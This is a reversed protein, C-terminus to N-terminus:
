GLPVADPPTQASADPALMSADSAGSVDPMPAGSADPAVAGLAGADQPEAGQEAGLLADMSTEFWTALQPNVTKLKEIFQSVSQPDNLDVGALQLMEFVKQLLASRTAEAKHGGAFMSAKFEGMKAKIKEVMALLEQRQEPTMPQTSPDVVVANPDATPDTPMASPDMPAPQMSPDQTPQMQSPDFNPM